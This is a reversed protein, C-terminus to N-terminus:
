LPPVAVSLDIGVQAFQGLRQDTPRDVHGSARDGIVLHPLTNGSMLLLTAVVVPPGDLLRDIQGVRDKVGASSGDNEHIAQREPDVVDHVLHVFPTPPDLLMVDFPQATLEQGGTPSM